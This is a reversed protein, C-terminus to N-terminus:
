ANHLPFLTKWVFFESKDLIHVVRDRTSYHGHIMHLATVGASQHRWKNVMCGQRFSFLFLSFIVTETHKGCRHPSSTWGLNVDEYAFHELTECEACYLVNGPCGHFKDLILVSDSRESYALAHYVLRVM